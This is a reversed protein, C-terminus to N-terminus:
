DGITVNDVGIGNNLDDAIELARSPNTGLISKIYALADCITLKTPDGSPDANLPVDPYTAASITNGCFFGCRTNSPFVAGSALNLALAAIQQKARQTTTRVSKSKLASLLSARMADTV